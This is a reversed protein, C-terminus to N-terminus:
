EDTVDIEKFFQSKTLIKHNKKENKHLAKLSKM